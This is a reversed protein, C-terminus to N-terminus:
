RSSDPTLSGWLMAKFSLMLEKSPSRNSLPGSGSCTPKGHISIAKCWSGGVSEICLNSRWRTPTGQGATQNELPTPNVEEGGPRVRMLSPSGRLLSPPTTREFWSSVARSPLM